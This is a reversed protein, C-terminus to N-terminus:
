LLDDISTAGEEEDAGADDGEDAKGDDDDPPEYSDDAGGVPTAAGIMRALEEASQPEFLKSYDFPALWKKADEDKPVFGKIQKATLRKLFEYDEGTSCETDGGGRAMEYACFKLDDDRREIQRMLGQRARGKAVFLQKQNKIKEGKRTKYEAHNIITGAVVYSPPKGDRECIPCTDMEKICTVQTWRGRVQLTHEYFFFAPSDLFTIKASSDSKLRFRWIGQEERRKKAAADEDKSREWGDKGKQFWSEGAM